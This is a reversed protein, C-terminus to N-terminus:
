SWVNQCIKKLNEGNQSILFTIHVGKSTKCNMKSIYLWFVLWFFHYIFYTKKLNNIVNKKGVNQGRRSEFRM